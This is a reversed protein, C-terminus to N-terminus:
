GDFFEGTFGSIRVYYYIGKKGFEIDYKYAIRIAAM